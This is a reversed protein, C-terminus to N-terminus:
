VQQNAECIKYKKLFIKSSSFKNTSHENAFEEDHTSPGKSDISHLEFFVIKGDM